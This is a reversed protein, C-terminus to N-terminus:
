EAMGVVQSYTMVLGFPISDVVAYINEFTNPLKNDSNTM